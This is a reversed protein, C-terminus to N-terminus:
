KIPPIWQVQVEITQGAAVDTTVGLDEYVTLFEANQEAGGPPLGQFAFVKYRGPAVDTITGVGRDDVSAATKFLAANERRPVSPVLVIKRSVDATTTGSVVVRVEGGGRGLVIEVPDIPETGVNIIGDDYISRSGVRIDSLYLGFPLPGIQLAYRGPPAAVFSFDGGSGIEQQSRLHMLLPSPFNDKPLLGIRMPSSPSYATPPSGALMFRGKIDASGISVVLGAVDRDEVLVRVRGTAYMQTNPAIPIPAATNSVSAARGSPIVPFLDWLGAPLEVEFEGGTGGHRNPILPAASTDVSRADAQVFTFGLIPETTHNKLVTGSVKFMPNKVVFDIGVIEQGREVPIRTAAEIDLTGPYYTSIGRLPGGDARVYYEGPRVGTIRYYGFADLQATGAQQFVRRGDRYGITGIVVTTIPLNPAIPNPQAAAPADIVRGSISTEPIGLQLSALVLSFFAVV